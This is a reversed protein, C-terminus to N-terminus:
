PAVRRDEIVEGLAAIERDHGPERFPEALADAEWAKMPELARLRAAYALSSASLPLEYSRIRWAVPCYMADAITFREGALFPGGFRTLGDNFLADLRDLDRQLAGSIADLRVRIGVSMPCAGRLAFFGAAMEASVSRAFARAAPDAPWFGDHREALHELIALTEWIVLAGDHLCPVQGTPSFQVFRERSPGDPNFPHLREEFGVGAMNLM